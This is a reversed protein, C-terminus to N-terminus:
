CTAPKGEVNLILKPSLSPSQALMLTPLASSRSRCLQGQALVEVIQMSLLGRFWYLSGPLSSIGIAGTAQPPIAKNPTMYRCSKGRLGPGVEFFSARGLVTRLLIPFINLAQGSNALTIPGVRSSLRLAHAVELGCRHRPGVQCTCGCIVLSALRPYRRAARHLRAAMGNTRSIARSYRSWHWGAM